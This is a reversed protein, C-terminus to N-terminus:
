IGYIASPLNEAQIVPLNIICGCFYLISIKTFSIIIKNSKSIKLELTLLNALPLHGALLQLTWRQFLTGSPFTSKSTTKTSIINSTNPSSPVLSFYFLALSSSFCCSLRLFTAYWCISYGLYFPCIGLFVWGVLVLHHLIPFRISRYRTFLNLCVATLFIRLLSLGPGLPKVSSNWWVNLYSTVGIRKVNKGWFQNPYFM